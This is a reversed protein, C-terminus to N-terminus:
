AAIRADELDELLWEEGDAGAFVEEEDVEEALLLLPALLLEDGGGAAAEDDEEGPCEIRSRRREDRAASAFFILRNPLEVEVASMTSGLSGSCARKLGRSWTGWWAAGCIASSLGTEGELDREEEPAEPVPGLSRGWGGGRSVAAAFLRGRCCSWEATGASVMVGVGGPPAEDEDELAFV